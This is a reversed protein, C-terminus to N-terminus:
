ATSRALKLETLADIEAVAQGTNAFGTVYVASVSSPLTDLQVQVERGGFRATLVLSGPSGRRRPALRQGDARRRRQVDREDGPRSTDVDIVEAHSTGEDEKLRDIDARGIRDLGALGKEVSEPSAEHLRRLEYLQAANRCRGSRYVDMLWAPPDVMARVFTIYTQSKGLRRAIEAQTVGKDLERKVFLALELPKLGERQENEIVQDYGDAAHDVFAPIEDKGALKSARLRRAGFNLIWRGEADPKPRVSVPQKVGTRAITAALEQLSEDDFDLRPQTPDEEIADLPLLMPRGTVDPLPSDLPQLDALDLPVQTENNQSRRAV